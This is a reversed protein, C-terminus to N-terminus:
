SLEEDTLSRPGTSMNERDGFANGVGGEMGNSSLKRPLNKKMKKM